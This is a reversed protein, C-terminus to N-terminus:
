LDFSRRTRGQKCILQFCADQQNWEVHYTAQDPRELSNWEHFTEIIAEWLGGKGREYGSWKSDRLSLQIISKEEPDVFTVLPINLMGNKEKMRAKSLTIGPISWQLFWHFNANDFLINTTTDDELVIRQIATQQLLKKVPSMALPGSRM